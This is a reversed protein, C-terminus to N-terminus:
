DNVLSKEAVDLLKECIANHAAGKSSTMLTSARRASADNTQPTSSGSTCYRYKIEHITNRAGVSRPTLM